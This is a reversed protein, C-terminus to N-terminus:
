ELSKKILERIYVPIIFIYYKCNSVLLDPDSGFVLTELFSLATDGSGVVVIRTNIEVRKVGSLRTSSIFLSMVEGSDTVYDPPSCADDIFQPDYVPMRRPAVPVLYQLCNLLPRDKHCDDLDDPTVLYVLLSFDALRLIENLFYRCYKQFVPYILFNELM